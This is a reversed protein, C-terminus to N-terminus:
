NELDNKSSIRMQFFFVFNAFIIFIKVNEFNFVVQDAYAETDIEISMESVRLDLMLGSEDKPPVVSVGPVPIPGIPM